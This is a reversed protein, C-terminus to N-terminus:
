ASLHSYNPRNRWVVVVVDDLDEVDFFGWWWCGLLFVKGLLRVAPDNV